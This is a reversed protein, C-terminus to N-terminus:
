VTDPDLLWKWAPIVRISKKDRQITKDDGSTIILGSSLKYQEMAEELGNMERSLTNPDSIDHLVQIAETITNSQRILFDCEHKDSHYYVTKKRRKLEIFVLNELYRGTNDSFGFALRSALANDIFYTKKPNQIQKKLSYDFKNIQFLLYTNALYSIYNKITTPSKIGTAATLSNNSSLKATNSALFTVLEIIERENSLNNRVMVDRYLINEYLTKLYDTDANKLFQPFGGETLYQNFNKSLLARGKTTLADDPHYKVGRFSLYENFSFPYLEFPIHRGTLRTGLERSLLSANSGTLYVKNGADYLRRVFREWEPINQIEDFYFTHQEGFQEIFVEHLIRFNEAKFHILREDDFNIYYDHEKNASRIQQLLVSKGCRRIGSIIIIEKCQRLKEPFHRDVYLETATEKQELIVEKLLDKM